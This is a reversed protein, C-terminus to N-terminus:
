FTIFNKNKYYLKLRHTMTLSQLRLLRMDIKTQSQKTGRLSSGFPWEDTDRM